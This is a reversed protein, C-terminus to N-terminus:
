IPTDNIIAQSPHLYNRSSGLQLIKSSRPRKHRIMGQSRILVLFRRVPVCGIPPSDATINWLDPTSTYRQYTHHACDQAPVNRPSTFKIGCRACTTSFHEEWSHLIRTDRASQLRSGCTSFLLMLALYSHRMCLVLDPLHAAKFNRTDYWIEANNTPM